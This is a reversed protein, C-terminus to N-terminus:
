YDKGMQRGDSTGARVGSRVRTVTLKVTKVTKKSVISEGGSKGRSM